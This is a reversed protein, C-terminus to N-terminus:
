ITTSASTRYSIRRACSEPTDRIISFGTKPVTLGTDKRAVKQIEKLIHNTQELQQKINSRETIDRYQCLVLGNYPQMICKFYYNKRKLPLKFNQTVNQQKEIVSRFVPEVKERTYEPLLNLINKGLLYKEQIFWLNSHVDIDICIGEENILLLTDATLSLIRQAEDAEHLLRKM